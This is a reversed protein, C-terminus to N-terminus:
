QRNPQYRARAAPLTLRVAPWENANDIRRLGRFQANLKIALLAAEEHSLGFLVTSDIEAPIEFSLDYVMWNDTPDQLAIFRM